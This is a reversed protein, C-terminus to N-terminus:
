PGEGQQAAQGPRDPARPRRLPILEGHADAAYQTARARADRKFVAEFGDPAVVLYADVPREDM